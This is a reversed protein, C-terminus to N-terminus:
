YGKFGRIVAGVLHGGPVRVLFLSWLRRYLLSHLSQLVKSHGGYCACGLAQKATPLSHVLGSFAPFTSTDGGIPLSLHGMSLCMKFYAVEVEEEMISM